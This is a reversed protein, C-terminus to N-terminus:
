KKKLLEGFVWGRYNELGYVEVLYWYNEWKEVRHKEPTRAILSVTANAPIVDTKPKSGEIGNGPDYAITPAAKEPRSRFKAPTVIEAKEWGESILELGDYQVRTGAKVLSDARGFTENKCKLLITHQIAKADTVYNCIQADQERLGVFDEVPCRRTKGIEIGNGTIKYDALGCAQGEFNLEFKATKDTFTLEVYGGQGTPVWSKGVIDQATFNTTVPEAPPPTKKCAIATIAIVAIALPFLVSPRM